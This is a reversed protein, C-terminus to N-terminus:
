ASKKKLLKYGTFISTFTQDKNTATILLSLYVHVLLFIIFVWMSLVHWIRVYSEGGLMSSVWRFSAATNIFGFAYGKYLAAGTLATFIMVLAMGLYALAQLPNYRGYEKHTGKLLLYYGLVDPVGALNKLIGFEKWDSSFRSNFALYVRVVLGLIFAYAAVLHFFKMWIMVFSAPGGAMFPWHIYFGTFILIAIAIFRVWHDLRFALNWEYKLENGM